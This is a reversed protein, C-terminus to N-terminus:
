LSSTEDKLEKVILKYLFSILEGKLKELVIKENEKTSKGYYLNSYNINNDECIKSVKIDNFSKLIETIEM